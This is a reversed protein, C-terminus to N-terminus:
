RASERFELRLFKFPDRCQEYAQIGIPVGWFYQSLIGTLKMRVDNANGVAYLYDILDRLIVTYCVFLVLQSTRRYTVHDIMRQINQYYIPLALKQLRSYLWCGTGLIDNRIDSFLKAIVLLNVM